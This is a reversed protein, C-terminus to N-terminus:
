ERVLFRALCVKQCVLQINQTVKWGVWLDQFITAKVISCHVRAELGISYRHKYGQLPWRLLCKAM